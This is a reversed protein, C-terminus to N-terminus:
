KKLDFYFESGEGLKSKVKLQSGHAEIIHKAIALGLGTGSVNSERDRKTRYFREFIRDIEKPPIGLGNDKVSIMVRKGLDETYIEILENPNYKVANSILNVLVNKLRAKDGLVELKAPVPHLKLVKGKDEVFSSMEKHIGTLYEKLNFYRFSMMMEGAEIMSIEILDNLLQNLNNLHKSAKELFRVNVNNDHIAGNMLTEIYGQIAFIPTRLEHSVNGLFQSRAKSLQSVKREQEKIEALYLKLEERLEENLDSLVLNDLEEIEKFIIKRIIEDLQNFEEFYKKIFYYAFFLTFCTLSVVLFLFIDLQFPFFLIYFLLIILPLLSLKGILKVAIKVRSFNKIKRKLNIDLM